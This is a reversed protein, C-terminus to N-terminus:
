NAARRDITRLNALGRSDISRSPSVSPFFGISVPRLIRYVFRRTSSAGDLISSCRFSSLITRDADEIPTDILPQQDRPYGRDFLSSLFSFLPFSPPHSFIPRDHEYAPHFEALSVVVLRRFKLTAYGPHSATWPLIRRKRGLGPRRPENRADERDTENRYIRARVHQVSLGSRSNAARHELERPQM